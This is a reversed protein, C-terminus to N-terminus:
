LKGAEFNEFQSVLQKASLTVMGVSKSSLINLLMSRTWAKLFIRYIDFALKDDIYWIENEGMAKELICCVITIM